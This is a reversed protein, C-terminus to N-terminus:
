CNCLAPPPPFNVNRQQIYRVGDDNEHYTYHHREHRVFPDTIGDFHKSSPYICASALYEGPVGIHNRYPQLITKPIEGRSKVAYYALATHKRLCLVCRSPKQPRNNPHTYFARGIFGLPSHLFQAIRACECNEGESCLVDGPKPAVMFREEYERTVTPLHIPPVPPADSRTKDTQWVAQLLKIYLPHQSRRATTQTPTVSAENIMKELADMFCSYVKNHVNFGVSPSISVPQIDSMPPVKGPPLHPPFVQEMQRRSRKREGGKGALSSWNSPLRFTM